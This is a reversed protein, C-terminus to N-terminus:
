DGRRRFLTVLALGIGLAMGGLALPAGLLGLWGALAASHLAHRAEGLAPAAMDLGLPTLGVGIMVAALTWLGRM